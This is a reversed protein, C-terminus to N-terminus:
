DSLQSQNKLSGWPSYGALSMQRHSGGPFFVPITQWKRRWPIKRFGPILGTDGASGASEKGSLWWPLGNSIIALLSVSIRLRGGKKGLFFVHLIKDHGDTILSILLKM